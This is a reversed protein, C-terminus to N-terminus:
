GETDCAAEAEEIASVADELAEIVSEAREGKEGDRFSNPMADLYGQEEDRATQLIERAQTLLEVAKAIEKRRVNNM